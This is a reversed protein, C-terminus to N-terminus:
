SDVFVDEMVLFPDHSLSAVEVSGGLISRVAPLAKLLMRSAQHKLAAQSCFSDWAVQGIQEPLSYSIPRDNRAGTEVFRSCHALAWVRKAYPNAEEPAPRM